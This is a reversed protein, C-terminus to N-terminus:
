SNKKAPTIMDNLGLYKTIKGIDFASLMANVNEPTIALINGNEDAFNWERILYPIIQKIFVAGEEQAKEFLDSKPNTLIKVYANPTQLDLHAIIEKGGIVVVKPKEPATPAPNTVNTDGPATTQTEDAM